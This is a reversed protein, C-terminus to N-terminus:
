RIACSVAELMQMPVRNEHQVTKFAMIYYVRPFLHAKVM